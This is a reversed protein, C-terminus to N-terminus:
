ASALQDIEGLLERPARAGTQSQLSADTEAEPTTEPDLAAESELAAEARSLLWWIADHMSKEDIGSPDSERGERPLAVLEIFPGPLSREQDAGRLTRYLHRSTLEYRRVWRVGDEDGPQSPSGQRQSPSGQRQSPGDEWQLVYGRGRHVLLAGNGKTTLARALSDLTAGPVSVARPGHLWCWETSPGLVDRRLRHRM